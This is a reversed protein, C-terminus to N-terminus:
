GGSKFTRPSNHTLSTSKKKKNNNNVLLIINNQVSNYQWFLLKIFTISIDSENNSNWLSTPGFDQLRTRTIIIIGDFRWFYSSKYAARETQSYLTHTCFLHFWTVQTHWAHNFWYSNFPSMTQHQDRNSSVDWGKIKLWDESYILSFSSQNRDCWWDRYIITQKTCSLRPEFGM